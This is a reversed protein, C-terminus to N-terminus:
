GGVGDLSLPFERRVRGFSDRGFVLVQDLSHMVAFDRDSLCYMLDGSLTADTLEVPDDTRERGDSATM